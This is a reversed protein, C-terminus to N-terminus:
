SECGDYNALYVTGWDSAPLVRKPSNDAVLGRVYFRSPQHKILEHVTTRPGCERWDGDVDMDIMFLRRVWDHGANGPNSASRMRLPVHALPVHQFQAAIADRKAKPLPMGLLRAGYEAKRIERCAQCIPGRLRSFLFTYQYETMMTSEDFLIAQFEASQYQEVDRETDCYSLLAALGPDIEIEPM